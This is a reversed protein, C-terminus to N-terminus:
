RRPLSARRRRAQRVRWEAALWGLAMPVTLQIWVFVEPPMAAGSADGFVLRNLTWTVVGTTATVYVPGTVDGRKAALREGGKAAM